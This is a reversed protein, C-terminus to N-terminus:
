GFLLNSLNIMFFCSQYGSMKVCLFFVIDLPHRKKNEVMQEHIM